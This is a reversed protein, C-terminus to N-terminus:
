HKSLNVLQAKEFIIEWEAFDQDSIEKCAIILTRLGERAYFNMHDLTSELKAPDKNNLLPIVTTDSSLPTSSFLRFTIM